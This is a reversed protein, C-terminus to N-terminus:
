LVTITEGGITIIKAERNKEIVPSEKKTNNTKGSKMHAPYVEDPSLYYYKGDNIDIMNWSINEGSNHETIFSFTKRPYRKSKFKDGVKPM